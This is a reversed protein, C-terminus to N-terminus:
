NRKTGVKRSPLDLSDRKLFMKLLCAANKYFDTHANDFVKHAFFGGWVGLHEKFFTAAKEKKGNKLLYGWFELECGIHDPLDQMSQDISFDESQYLLKVQSSSPGVIFGKMGRQVSTKSFDKWDGFGIQIEDRYYSEYLAVKKSSPVSFLSAYDVEIDSITELWASSELIEIESEKSFRALHTTFIKQDIVEKVFARSPPLSFIKSFFYSSEVLPKTM